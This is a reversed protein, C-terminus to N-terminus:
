FVVDVVKEGSIEAVIKRVQRRRFDLAWLATPLNALVGDRQAAGSDFAHAAPRREPMPQSFGANETGHNAHRHRKRRLFEGSNQKGAHADRVQFPTLSSETQACSARASVSKAFAPNANRNLARARLATGVDGARIIRQAATCAAFQSNIKLNMGVVAPILGAERYVRLAERQFNAFVGFPSGHLEFGPHAEARM